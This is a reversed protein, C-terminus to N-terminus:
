QDSEYCIPEAGGPRSYASRRGCLNGRSDYDYPCECSGEYPERSRTSSSRSPMSPSATEFSPSSSSSGCAHQFAFAFVTGATVSGSDGAKTTYRGTNCNGSVRETLRSAVRGNKAEVYQVTFSIYPFNQVISHNDVYVTMTGSTDTAVEAWDIAIAPVAFCSLGVVASTFLFAKRM